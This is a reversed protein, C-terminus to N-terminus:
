FNLGYNGIKKVDGDTLDTFGQIKGSEGTPEQIKAPTKKEM